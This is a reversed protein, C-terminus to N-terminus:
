SNSKTLVVRTVDDKKFSDNLDHAGTVYHCVPNDIDTFKAHIYRGKGISFKVWIVYDNAFGYKVPFLSDYEQGIKYEVM